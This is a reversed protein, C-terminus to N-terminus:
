VHLPSPGGSLTLHKLLNPATGRNRAPSLAPRRGKFYFFNLGKTPVDISLDVSCLSIRISYYILGM